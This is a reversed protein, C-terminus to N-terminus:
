QGIDRMNGPHDSGARHRRGNSDGMNDGKGGVLCEGARSAGANQGGLAGQRLFNVSGDEGSFLTSWVDMYKSGQRKREFQRFGRLELFQLDLGYFVACSQDIM